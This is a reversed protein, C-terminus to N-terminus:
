LVLEAMVQLSTETPSAIILTSIGSPRWAELHEAIRPKPGVL